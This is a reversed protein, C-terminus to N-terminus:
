LKRKIKIKPNYDPYIKMLMFEDIYWGDYIIKFKKSLLYNQEFPLIKGLLYDMSPSFYPKSSYPHRWKNGFQKILEQKTKFRYLYM